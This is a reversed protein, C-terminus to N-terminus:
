APIWDRPERMGTLKIVENEIKARDPPSSDRSALSQGSLALYVLGPGAYRRGPIQADCM